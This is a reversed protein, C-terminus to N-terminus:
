TLTCRSKLLQFDHTKQLQLVNRLSTKSDENAVDSSTGAMQREEASTLSGTLANHLYVYHFLIHNTSKHSNRM